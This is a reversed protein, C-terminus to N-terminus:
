LDERNRYTESSKSLIDFGDYHDDMFEFFEPDEEFGQRVMMDSKPRKSWEGPGKDKTNPQSFAAFRALHTNLAFLGQRNMCPQGPNAGCYSMPCMVAWCDQEPAQPTKSGPESM